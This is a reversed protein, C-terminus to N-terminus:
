SHFVTYKYLTVLLNYNCRGLWNMMRQQKEETWFDAVQVILITMLHHCKMVYLMRTLRRELLTIFYKCIYFLVFTVPNVDEHGILDCTVDNSIFLWDFDCRVCNVHLYDSLYDTLVMQHM